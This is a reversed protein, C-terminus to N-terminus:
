RATVEFNKSFSFNYTGTAARVRLQYTKGPTLNKIKIEHQTGVKPTQDTMEGYNRTEGYLVRATGPIDTKFKIVVEGKGVATAQIDSIVPRAPKPFAKFSEYGPRPNLKKDMLGYPLSFDCITHYTAIPIYDYEPKSLTQYYQTVWEGVPEERGECNWGMETIWIPLHGDGNEEMIQKLALIKGPQYPGDNYYPHDVVADFYGKGGLEYVKRLYIPGNGDADDLGTLGVLCSPDEEKLVKYAIKLWPVYEEAVNYGKETHWGYGNAENWFEWYKIRGKYRAVLQRCFNEFDARAEEKPAHFPTDKGTPSAWSPTSNILGVIALNNDVALEVHWDVFTWDPKGKVREIQDWNFGLRVITGGADAITKFMRGDFTKPDGGAEIGSIPNIGFIFPRDAAQGATSVLIAAAATVALISIHM